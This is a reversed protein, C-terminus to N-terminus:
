AEADFGFLMDLVHESLTSAATDTDLNGTEIPEELPEILAETLSSESSETSELNQDLRAEMQNARTSVQLRPCTAASEAGIVVADGEDPNGRAGYGCKGAL